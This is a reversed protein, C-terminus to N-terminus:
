LTVLGRRIGRRVADARNAAGLKALVSAVHFKATHESIHLRAAIERNSLGHALQELVERERRTLAEDFVSSEDEVTGLDPVAVAEERYSAPELALSEETFGGDDGRPDAGASEAPISAFGADAALLAAHLESDNVTGPLVSWGLLGLQSLHASVRGAGSRSLVVVAPVPPDLDPPWGTLAREDGLLLVDAPQSRRVDELREGEGM